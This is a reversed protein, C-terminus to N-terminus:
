FDVGVFTIAVPSWGNRTLPFGEVKIGGAQAGVRANLPAYFVWVVGAQAGMAERGYSYWIEGDPVCGEKGMWWVHAGLKVSGVTYGVEAVYGRTVVAAVHNGSGDGAPNRWMQHASLRTEIGFAKGLAYISVNHQRRKAGPYSGVDGWNGSAGAEFWGLRLKVTGGVGPTSNNRSDSLAWVDPEGLCWDGDQVTADVSVIDWGRWRLSGGKDFHQSHLVPAPLALYHESLTGPGAGLGECVTGVAAELDHQDGAEIEVAVEALWEPRSAYGDGRLWTQNQQTKETLDLLGPAPAWSAGARLRCVQALEQELTAGLEGYGNLVEVEGGNNKRAENYITGLELRADFEVGGCLLSAAAAAAAAM